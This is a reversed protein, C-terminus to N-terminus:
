INVWIPSSWAMEGNDQTVRVYYFSPVSPVDEFEFKLTRGEDRQLIIQNNKVIEVKLNSTGAVFVYGSCKKALIEEGMNHGNIKFDLIIREGTTAYCRRERIAKFIEERTLSNTLVGTIGNRYILEGAGVHNGGARTFHNDGSGIVGVKLGKSLAVQWFGEDLIGGRLPKLPRPNGLYESAGWCSYIEVVPEIEEGGYFKWTQGGGGWSLHHPWAMVDEGRGKLEELALFLKDATECDTHPIFEGDGAYYINFHGGKRVDPQTWEYALFTVFKEPEYHEDALEKITEWGRKVLCEEPTWFLYDHDTLCAFDLGQVEKAYPYFFEPAETGDSITSHNHIDGWFIKLERDEVLIPNSEASLRGDTVKITHVGPTYLQGTFRRVGEVYSTPPLKASPDDSSFFIKGKYSWAVNGYKDMARVILKVPEGPAVISSAVVELKAPKDAVFKCSLPIKADDFIFDVSFDPHAIPIYEIDKFVVEAEQGKRLREIFRLEVAWDGFPLGPLMRVNLNYDVPAEAKIYNPTSPDDWGRVSIQDEVMKFFLRTRTPFVLKIKETDRGAEFVVKFDINKSVGIRKPVFYVKSGDEKACFFFRQVGLLSM